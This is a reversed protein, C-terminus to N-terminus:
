HGSGVISFYRATAVSLPSSTPHGAVCFLWTLVKIRRLVRTLALRHGKRARRAAHGVIDEDAYCTCHAPNCQPAVTDSIHAFMHHKPVMHWLKQGATQAASSLAAACVLHAQVAYQLHALQELLLYRGASHLTRYYEQLGWAATLMWRRRESGDQWNRARTLAWPIIKKAQNAKCKLFPYTSAKKRNLKEKTWVDCLVKIGQQDCFRRYSGYAQMLRVDQSPGNFPSTARDAVLEWIFSGLFYPTCGMDVCHMSDIFVRHLWFGPIRALAPLGDPPFTAMWAEHTIRTQRWAAGAGMDTFLLNPDVRSADCLHCCSLNAYHRLHFTEKLWKWDGRTETWVGLRGDMLPQGQLRTRWSRKSWPRGAHDTEPWLGSALVEFSWVIISYILALTQPCSRAWDLCTLVLRSNATRCLPGNLSLLLLKGNKVYQADDGHLGLPVATVESSTAFQRLNPHNRAWPQHFERQWFQELMGQEGEFLRQFEERRFQHLHGIYEHPLLTYHTELKSGLLPQAAKVLMPVEFAYLQPVSNCKSAAADFLRATDRATNSGQVGGAAAAAALKVLDARPQSGADRIDQM